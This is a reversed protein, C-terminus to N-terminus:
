PLIVVKSKKTRTKNQATSTKAMASKPPLVNRDFKLDSETEASIRRCEALLSEGKLQNGAKDTPVPKDGIMKCSITIEGLEYADRNIGWHVAARKFSDSTEGKQADLLTENGSDGKWIWEEGIKIGIKCFQKGKVEFYDDQWLHAGVVEDLRDQVQRADVYPVLVMENPDKNDPKLAKVRWKLQLPNKLDKLQM